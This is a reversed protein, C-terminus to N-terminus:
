PIRINDRDKKCSEKWTVAVKDGAGPHDDGTGAPSKATRNTKSLTCTSYIAQFQDKVAAADPASSVRRALLEAEDYTLDNLAEDLDLDQNEHKIKQAGLLNLKENLAAWKKRKEAATPPMVQLMVDFRGSRSFAADFDSVYNTALLFVIRRKQNISALKPLMATTIFRSLLDQNASRDRGMEDFEDLLVVIEESIELMSFLKNAMAQVKDLGDKVVYSPDVELRPWKLYDSIIKALTTKSTGPPGFFIASMPTNKPLNQGERVFHADRALPYVFKTALTERLSLPQAEGTPWLEADLFDEAFGKLSRDEPPVQPTGPPGKYERGLERFLEVRIAEAVVRNLAHAFHYVSATSWSEPGPLQPHHGSAWGVEQRGRTNDLDFKTSELARAARALEPLYRLLHDLLMDCQLLQTLLEYEFCYANGVKRYHFMPRSLPWGGDSRQSQFFTRLAHIFIEKEEPKEARDPQSQIATILAYALQMPDAARSGAAILAVQKNIEALSWSHVLTDVEKSGASWLKLVRHALQTLYASPPYPFIAVSGKAGAGKAAQKTEELASAETWADDSKLSDTIKNLIDTRVAKEHNKADSYGADHSRLNWIGEAIFSLTFPNDIGLDASDRRTLLFDAINKTESSLKAAPTTQVDSALKTDAASKADSPLELDAWRGTAVLSALCTASSAVSAEKKNSLLHCFGKRDDSIYSRMTAGHTAQLSNLDSRLKALGAIDLPASLGETGPELDM